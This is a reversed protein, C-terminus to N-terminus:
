DSNATSTIALAMWDQKSLKAIRAKLRVTVYLPQLTPAANGSIAGTLYLTDNVAFFSESLKGFNDPYFDQSHSVINNVADANLAGSAILNSDDARVLTTGPNSDTVQATVTWTGPDLTSTEGLYDAGIQFIFDAEEIALAESSAINVLGGIDISGMTLSPAGQATAAPITITETLYFSSTKSTAMIPPLGCSTLISNEIGTKFM